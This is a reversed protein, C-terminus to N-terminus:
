CRLVERQFVGFYKQTVDAMNHDCLLAKLEGLGRNRGTGARRLAKVCAALLALEGPGPEVYFTLPAEFVTERLIVRVSRLMEDRSAGTEASVATQRRIATLSELVQGPELEERGVGSEVAKRLKEPLRADGVHMISQDGASSGPCGFLRQAAQRLSEDWKGQLRLAFIINACEEQLVGKLARGGLYPLGWQDHSVEADVGGAVGDGRGFVADTLLKFKLWMTQM